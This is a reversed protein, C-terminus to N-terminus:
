ITTNKMENIISEVRASWQTHEKPETFSRFLEKIERMKDTTLNLAKLFSLRRIGRFVRRIKETINLNLDEGMSAKLIDEENILWKMGYNLDKNNIKQLLIRFVDLGATKAGYLNMYKSNYSWLGNKSVNDAEIAQCSVEGALHGSLMSPGIGGGHIPNPQCAADGLILVGNGVM